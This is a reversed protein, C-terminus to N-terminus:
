IGGSRWLGILLDVMRGYSKVGDRQMNARLYTNNVAQATDSIPSKFQQWYSSYHALDRNLGDSYTQRLAFYMDSDAAYLKNMANILALVTGSYQVADDGSTSAVYYALFNAEDERAFGRQHAAEHLCTAPFLLMPIDANVNSEGTFPFYVGTIHAYSLGTSYLVPKVRGFNGGLFSNGTADAAMNYYGPVRQMMDSKSFMPLFVGNEYEPLGDRLGNAQGILAECTDRLESASAPSTDLALTEGLPQRSYNFGWQGVFLAYVISVICLLFLVRNLLVYWWSKKALVTRVIMLILYVATFLLFVYLLLEGLSFPLIGTLTSLGQNMYYFIRRSYVTETFAPWLQSLLFLLYFLPGPLLWIIKKYIEKLDHQILTNKQM